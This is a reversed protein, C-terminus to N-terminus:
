AGAPTLVRSLAIVYAADGGVRLRSRLLKTLDGPAAVLQYLDRETLSVYAQPGQGSDIRFRLHAEDGADDTYHVDVIGPMSRLRDPELVPAEGRSVRELHARMAPLQDQLHRLLQPWTDRVLTRWQELACSCSVVPAAAAEAATSLTGGTFSIRFTESSDAAEITAEAEIALPLAPPSNGVISHWLDPLYETYFQNPTCRRPPKPLTESM